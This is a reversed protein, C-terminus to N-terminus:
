YFVTLCAEGKVTVKMIAVFGMMVGFVAEMWTGVTRFSGKNNQLLWTHVYWVLIMNNNTQDWAVEWFLRLSTWSKNFPCSHLWDTILKGYPILKSSLILPFVRLSLLCNHGCLYTCVSRSCYSKITLARNEILPPIYNCMYLAQPCSQLALNTGSSEGQMKVLSPMSYVRRFLFVIIWRMCMQFAPDKGITSQRPNIPIYTFAWVFCCNEQNDAQHTKLM